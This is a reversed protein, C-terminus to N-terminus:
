QENSEFLAREVLYNKYAENLAKNLDYYVQHGINTAWRDEDPRYISWLTNGSKLKMLDFNVSFNDRERNLDM